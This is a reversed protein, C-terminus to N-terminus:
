IKRAHLSHITEKEFSLLKYNEAEEKKKEKRDKKMEQLAKNRINSDTQILSTMRPNELLVTILVPFQM